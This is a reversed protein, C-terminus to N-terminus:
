TRQMGRTGRPPPRRCGSPRWRCGLAECAGAAVEGLHRGQPRSGGCWRRGVGRQRNPQPFSGTSLPSQAERFDRAPRSRFPDRGPPAPGPAGRQDRPSTSLQCCTPPAPSRAESQSCHVLAHLLRHRPPRPTLFPGRPSQPRGRRSLPCRRLRTTVTVCLPRRSPRSRGAAKANALQLAGGGRLSAFALPTGWKRDPKRFTLSGLFHGTELCRSWQGDRKTTPTLLRPLLPSLPWAQIWLSCSFVGVVPAGLPPWTQRPDRTHCSLRLRYIARMFYIDAGVGAFSLHISGVQPASLAARARKLCCRVSM